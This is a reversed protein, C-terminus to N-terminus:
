RAVGLRRATAAIGRQDFKLRMTVFPGARTYRDEEFDRDRYGSFNYGATVWVDTAPSVGVTPGFAYAITGRTWAHQVSGQVGIDLRRSLDRRIDVGIADIYGDYADTGFTGRVWKAGYYVTADWGRGPDSRYNVATNGVIRFSAQAGGLTGAGYSPVGLVNGGTFGAGAREDRLQVRNLLSWNSNLPRWAISVDASAYAATAGSPQDVRFWRLSSAITRGQGVSRLLNSTVGFRDGSASQRMEVRGNWNWQGSRYNAGLTIAAFDDTGGGQTQTNGATVPQFANVRAGDPLRGRLTDAADLTADITWRAGLPISQTLGYQAFTRGANESAVAQQNLSSSLKAGSWPAVDFGLQATQTTFGRGDAIEYGALLRVDPRVRWAATVQHRIPFDISDKNGGPAVQTQGGITLRGGLLAQTGGLTLLRSDRDQGDIGRDSALQAGVFATGNGRRWEARVDAATRTAGTLFQDQRWATGTLALRDTLAVRGDLGLKRSGAEVINQQGVGFGTDQQRAYALVDIAPGHHEAEVMWAQGADLGRRGGTAAEARVLTTRTLQARADVAILTANSLAKDHLATVGVEARGDATRTAARAGAVRRRADGYTEYDVVIFVPNRSADRSLVPERFRITGMEPDIDYDIHRVMATSSVVLESRLRDRVEIRLKDSNPVVGRASLRYPGSLGNGQIEDRAYRDDTDAAFATVTVSRGQYAVKAGNLTRNYRGLQTDTFGTEYDGFLAVLEPRELRLYLKRSTAADYGQQTRDGYVTYYRDPDITGLLGRTRDRERDSDYAITALWAGKVRGKAYLALQGDTVVKGKSYWPLSRGHKNLVDYGFTGSGFGVVTWAKAMPALWARLDVRHAGREQALTVAVRVAGAQASPQLALLAVGDDGVVRAVAGGATGTAARVQDLAVDTAAAHPAAVEVPVVTGARVPRGARDTLRIAILPRTVGDAVLRSADALYTAQAAAGSSHVIRDITAVVSGDAALVRASLRNDGEVLPIGSWRSIAVRDDPGTDTSDFDIPDSQVGNVTLAVRQGPLHKVVVRIAPARPNHDALPFLMAVGPAQGAFWDRRGAAVGDDSAAVIDPAAKRGNPRLLFDVRKMLGGDSEVFRSLDNGASRTDDDCAVPDLTAPITGRDLQVVHRGPRVGEIHYLGDKDTVVYTGDELLIRIDAVGRRRAPPDGCRGETVRGVVTFGDTTLLPRLRVSAAAENGTAGDAGSALVRNVAEGPPAGPAVSVVYRLDLTARPAVEPVVFALTRGDAAIQPAAVGRESGREYRLGRPLIDTIRVNRAAADGRNTLTVRYQVLDGPSAERVSATKTLLLRTEGIRDLPIDTYFAENGVDFPAGFSAPNVIYSQGRPDRLAALEAPPRTSPATYGSPPDIRLHYRGPAILPFEYYGQSAVYTRGSADRVTAGSVVTSPYRSVGDTGFVTAPRGQDDLLTVTAGDVLAGTASDYVYGAPDVLVDIQSSLSFADETFSLKLRAGRQLRADCAANQPNTGAAPIGGAFVGTDPGTEMLPLSLNFSTTAVTVTSQERVLPDHNGGQNDLVLIFALRPNVQGTPATAAFTAEDIPAPTYRFAPTTECKTGTMQYGVPPLRFSLSTPRKTRDVTLAVTNSSVVTATGGGGGSTGGGGTAGGGTGGGGLGYTLTATNVIRAGDQAAALAATALLGTLALLLPRVIRM